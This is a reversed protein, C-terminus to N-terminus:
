RYIERRHGVDVVLVTRDADRIEYIVRYDGVRIRWAERGSLKKVGSPRPNSGLRTIALVLRDQVTSSLSSLSKNASRLILVSYSM